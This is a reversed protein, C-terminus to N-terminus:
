AMRLTAALPCLQEVEGPRYEFLRILPCAEAGGALFEIKM